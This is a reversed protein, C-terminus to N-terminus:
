GAVQRIGAGKKLDGELDEFDKLEWLPRTFANM